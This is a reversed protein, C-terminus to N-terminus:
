SSSGCLLRNEHSHLEARMSWDCNKPVMTCLWWTGDEFTIRVTGSDQMWVSRVTKGDMWECIKRHEEM